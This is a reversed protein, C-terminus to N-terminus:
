CHYISCSARRAHINSHHRLPVHPLDQPSVQTRHGLSLLTKLRQQSVRVLVTEHPLSHYAKACVYYAYAYVKRHLKLKQAKSSHQLVETMTVCQYQNRAYLYRMLYTAILGWLPWLVGEVLM